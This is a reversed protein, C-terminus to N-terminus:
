RHRAQHRGGDAHPLRVLRAGGQAGALGAAGPVGKRGDRGGSGASGGTRPPVPLVAEEAEPEGEWAAERTQVFRYNM